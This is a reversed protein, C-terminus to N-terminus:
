AYDDTALKYTGKEGDQGNSNTKIYHQWNCNFAVRHATYGGSLANSPVGRTVVLIMASGKPTYSHNYLDTLSDREWQQRSFLKKPKYSFHFRQSQSLPLYGRGILKCKFYKKNYPNTWPLWGVENPPIATETAGGLKQQENDIFGLWDTLTDYVGTDPMNRKFTMYYVEFEVKFNTDPNLTEDQGCNTMTLDLVSKNVKFWWNPQVLNTTTSNPFFTETDIRIKVQYADDLAFYRVDNVPAVGSGQSVSPTSQGRYSFIPIMCVGQKNTDFKWSRGANRVATMCYHKKLVKKVKARFRRRIRRRISRLRKARKYRKKKMMKLLGYNRAKGASAVYDRQLSIPGGSPPGGGGGLAGLLQSAAGILQSNNFAPIPFQGQGYYSM